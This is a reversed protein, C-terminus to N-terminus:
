EVNYDYEEIFRQKEEPTMNEFNYNEEDPKYYDDNPEVKIYKGSEDVKYVGEGYLYDMEEQTYPLPLIGAKEIVLWAREGKWIDIHTKNIVKVGKLTLESLWTLMEEALPIAKDWEKNYYYQKCENWLLQLKEHKIEM